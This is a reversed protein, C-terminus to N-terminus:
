YARRNGSLNNNEFCMAHEDPENCDVSPSRISKGNRTKKTESTTSANDTQIPVSSRLRL